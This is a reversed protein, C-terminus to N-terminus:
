IKKQNIKILSLRMEIFVLIQGLNVKIRSKQGRTVKFSRTLISQLFHLDIAKIHAM